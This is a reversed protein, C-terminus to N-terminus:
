IEPYFEFFADLSQLLQRKIEEENDGELLHMTVSATQGNKLKIKAEEVSELEEAPLLRVGYVMALKAM